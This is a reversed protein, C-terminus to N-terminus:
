NDQNTGELGQEVTEINTEKRNGRSGGVLAGGAISVTSLAIDKVGDKTDKDASSLLIGFSLLIGGLGLFLPTVSQIVDSNFM